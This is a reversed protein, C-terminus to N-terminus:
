AAELLASTDCADETPATHSPVGSSLDMAGAASDLAALSEALLTDVFLGNSSKTLRQLIFVEQGNVTAKFVQASRGVLAHAGTDQGELSAAPSGGAVTLMPAPVGGAIRGLVHLSAM